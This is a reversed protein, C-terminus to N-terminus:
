RSIQLIVHICIYDVRTHIYVYLYFDYLLIILLYIPIFYLCYNLLLLSLYNFKSTEPSTQLVTHLHQTKWPVSMTCAADAKRFYRTSRKAMFILTRVCM